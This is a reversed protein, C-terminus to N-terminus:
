VVQEKMSLNGNCRSLIYAKLYDNVGELDIRGSMLDDEEIEVLTWDDKEASRAHLKDVETPALEIFISRTLLRNGDSKTLLKWPFEESELDGDILNKLDDQEIGYSVRLEEETARRFSERITADVLSGHGDQILQDIWIALEESQVAVDDALHGNVRPKIHDRIVVLSVDDESKRKLAEYLCGYLHSSTVHANFLSLKRSVGGDNGSGVRSNQSGIESAGDIKQSDSLAGSEGYESGVEISDDALESGRERAQLVCYRAVKGHRIRRCRLWIIAIAMAEEDSLNYIHSDANIRPSLNSFRALEVSELRPRPKAVEDVRLGEGLVNRNENDHLSPILFVDGYHYMLSIDRGSIMEDICRRYWNAVDPGGEAGPLEEKLSEDRVPSCPWYLCGSRDPRIAVVVPNWVGDSEYISLKIRRHDALRQLHTIQAHLHKALRQRYDQYLGGDGQNVGAVGEEDSKSPVQFLQKQRRVKPIVVTVRFPTASGARIGLAVSSAVDTMDCLVIYLQELGPASVLRTIDVGQQREIAHARREAALSRFLVKPVESRVLNSSYPETRRLWKALADVYEALEASIEKHGNEIRNIDWRNVSGIRDAGNRNLENAFEEQTLKAGRRLNRMLLPLGSQPRREQNTM